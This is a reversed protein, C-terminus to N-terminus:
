FTCFFMYPRCQTLRWNHLVRHTMLNRRLIKFVCVTQIDKLAPLETKLFDAYAYKISKVLKKEGETAAISPDELIGKMAEQYQKFLRNLKKEQLKLQRYSLGFSEDDKSSNTHQNHNLFYISRFPFMEYM